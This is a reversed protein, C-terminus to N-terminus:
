LKADAVSELPHVSADVISFGLLPRGRKMPLM